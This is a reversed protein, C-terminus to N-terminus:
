NRAKSKKGWEYLFLLSGIFAALSLILYAIRLAVVQHEIGRIFYLLSLLILCISRFLKNRVIKM